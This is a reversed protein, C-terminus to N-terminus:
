QQLFEMGKTGAEEVINVSDSRLLVGGCLCIHEQGSYLGRSNHFNRELDLLNVEPANGVIITIVIPNM